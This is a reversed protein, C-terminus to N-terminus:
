VIRAEINKQENLKKMLQSTLSKRVTFLISCSEIFEQNIIKIDPLKLVRMVFNMENYGFLVEIKEDITKTEREANNLSDEAAAKYATILGGVGLM